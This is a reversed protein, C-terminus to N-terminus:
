IGEEAELKKGYSAGSTARGEAMGFAMAMSENCESGCESPDFVYPPGPIVLVHNYGNLMPFLKCSCGDWEVEESQFRTTTLGVDNITWETGGPSLHCALQCLNFLQWVGTPKRWLRWSSTEEPGADSIGWVGERDDTLPMASLLELSCVGGNPSLGYNCCDAVTGCCGDQVTQEPVLLQIWITSPLAPRCRPNPFVPSM